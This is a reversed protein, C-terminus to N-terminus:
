NTKCTVEKSNYFFVPDTYKDKGKVQELISYFKDIADDVRDELTFKFNNKNTTPKTNM